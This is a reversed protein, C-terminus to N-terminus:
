GTDDKAQSAFIGGPGVSVYKILQVNLDARVWPAESLNSDPFLFFTHFFEAFHIKVIFISSSQAFILDKLSLKSNAVRAFFLGHVSIKETLHVFEFDWAQNIVTLTTM